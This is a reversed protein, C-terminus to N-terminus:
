KSSPTNRVHTTRPLMPWDYNLDYNRSNGELNYRDPSISVKLFTRLRQTDSKAVKHICTEDLKLLTGNPFAISDQPRAQQEFESLSKRHCQTVEFKSASFLTPMCDYWVYNLDDSMFGDSHYGPRNPSVDGGVIMRKATIYVYENVFRTPEDARIAQIMPLAFQLSKPLACRTSRALSIPLYLYYFVESPKLAIVGLQKPMSGYHKM